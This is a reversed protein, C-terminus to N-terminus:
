NTTPFCIFTYIKNAFTFIQYINKGSNGPLEPLFWFSKMYLHYTFWLAQTFTLYIFIM